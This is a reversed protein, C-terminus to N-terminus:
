LPPASSVPGSPELVIAKLYAAEAERFRGAAGSPKLHEFHVQDVTLRGCETDCM